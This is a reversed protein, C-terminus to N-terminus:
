AARREETNISLHHSPHRAKLTRCISEKSVHDQEIINNLCPAPRCHCRRGLEGTQKLETIVSACAPHGDVKIVRPAPVGVSLALRLFMKAAILDRNTSLMFEIREGATLSGICTRGTELSRSMRRM